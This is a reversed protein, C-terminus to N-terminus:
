QSFAAQSCPREFWDRHLLATNGSNRWDCSPLFPDTNGDYLLGPGVMATFYGNCTKGNGRLGSVAFAERRSLGAVKAGSDGDFLGTQDRDHSIVWVYRDNFCLFEVDRALPTTGDRGLLDHRSDRTFDFSRQVVMGNPLTVSDGFRTAWLLIALIGLVLLLALFGAGAYRLWTAVNARTREM